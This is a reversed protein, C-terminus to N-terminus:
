DSGGAVLVEVVIMTVVVVVVDVDSGVPLTSDNVVASGLPLQPATLLPPAAPVTRLTRLQPPNFTPPPTEVTASPGVGAPASVCIFTEPLPAVRVSLPRVEACVPLLLFQESVPQM